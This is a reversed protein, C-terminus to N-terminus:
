LDTSSRFVPGRRRYSEKATLFLFFIILSEYLLMQLSTRHLYGIVPTRPAWHRFCYLTGGGIKIPSPASPGFTYHESAIRHLLLHRFLNAVLCAFTQRSPGSKAWEAFKIMSVKHDITMLYKPSATKSGGTTQQARSWCGRAGKGM